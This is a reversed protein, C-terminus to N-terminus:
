LSSRKSNSSSIHQDDSFYNLLALEPLFQRSQLQGTQEILEVALFFNLSALAQLVQKLQFFDTLWTLEILQNL